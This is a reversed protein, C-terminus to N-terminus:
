HTIVVGPRAGTARGSDWVLQGNVLVKEIGVPLEQPKEFTSRDIVTAPDFLVLDAIAGEKLVGRNAWGLREAPLSTMKWIAEQLTFWRKERVLRGLVRPFTGAGRPHPMGIGGDSAVMVWPQQYFAKVDAEIMSHGIVDAETNAADGERIIQIYMEVPTVQNMKALEALSHGAYGPNAKFDTITLRAAGGLDAIAKEVSRPNEYQKDPVIVKINSHWAEYPYCDALFDVGRSRAEEIVRIYEYAKGWVGVTGLKIHSHDVPIHAQEAIQIEELLADFSKDAEDRIHTSYIGGHESASRAMAVLEATNSYSAVEYELGSSLGLAGENMAQWTLQAMKAIEEPTAVRKHDKGMVLERITAHGAFVAVNLSAPNQRRKAVWDAIPWPSDGDPGQVATTIGQAIQTEALPDSDLGELSHNHIDIFGPALVLGHADIVHEGPSPSLKGISMIHDGRIRVAGERLPTGTGDAIQANVILLTQDNSAGAGQFVLPSGVVIMALLVACYERIWRMSQTESFSIRNRLATEPVMDPERTSHPFANKICIEFIAVV